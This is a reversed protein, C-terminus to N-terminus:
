NLYRRLSSMTGETTELEMEQELVRIKRELQALRNDVQCHFFFFSSFLNHAFAPPRVAALGAFTVAYHFLILFIYENGSGLSLM